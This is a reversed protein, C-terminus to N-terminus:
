ATTEVQNPLWIVLMLGLLVVISACLFITSGSFIQWYHGALLSGSAVGLGWMTSYLAQGRGQQEASFNQFIVKMAILHFLGFSFAHLCQALLQGIFNAGLMGVLFWRLSTLLLCIIVLSRWSFRTFFVKQAIAFMVIEAIVGTAWLSGIQTTSFGIEKLFNSYFSYFPAQSFLLIFEITFFAAIMPKKLIPLLPELKKQSSPAQEPEKISFSWLFALFSVSLLLIPLMSIPIVELLAGIAFVGAIFGVSGWKRVKGYLEARKEGLWFLTVGEFQALIANQFFSFILMLLAVAQFSNPIIFIAFWICAEMWTAIRVLLMRKGSKDAVWGWIFPAFFRTIIAISSLIGIEQYNFGQNQLYLNWYPMFTGVISYYFFYFGGLRTKINLSQLM